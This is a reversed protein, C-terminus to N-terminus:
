FEEGLFKGVLVKLDHHGNKVAVFEEQLLKLRYNVAVSEKQLHKFHPEFLAQLDDMSIEELEADGPARRYYQYEMILM